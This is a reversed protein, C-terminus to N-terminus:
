SIKVTEVTETVEPPESIVGTGLDISYNRPLQYRNRIYQRYNTLAADATQVEEVLKEWEFQLTVMTQREEETMTALERPGKRRLGPIKARTKGM